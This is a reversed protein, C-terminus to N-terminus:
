KSMCKTHCHLHSILKRVKKVHERMIHPTNLYHSHSAQRAGTQPASDPGCDAAIVVATLRQCLASVADM